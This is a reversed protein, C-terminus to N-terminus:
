STSFVLQNSHVRNHAYYEFLCLPAYAELMKLQQLYWVHDVKDYVMWFSFFINVLWIQLNSKLGTPLYTYFCLTPLSKNGRPLGFVVTPLGTTVVWLLYKPGGGRQCVIQAPSGMAKIQCTWVGSHNLAANGAAITCTIIPFHWTNYVIQLKYDGSCDLPLFYLNCCRLM